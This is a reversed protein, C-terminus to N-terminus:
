SRARDANGARPREAQVWELEALVDDPLDLAGDRRIDCETGRLLRFPALRENAAAIEEAQRRVGDADLGPVSASASTHDCIALYDYGRDHAALAWRTSPRGGTRGRRTAHLDGRVRRARGAPHSAEFEGERLEPPRVPARPARLRRGRGAGAPLPELAAVYEQSGTARVLETGFRGPAAVLLEVPVGEVTVGLARRPEREVVAVIQPLAEFRELVQEAARGPRGGGPARSADRWRRPDGAAEGGLEEAISQM